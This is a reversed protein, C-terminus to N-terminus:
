GISWFSFEFTIASRNGPAWFSLQEIQLFPRLSWSSLRLSWSSLLATHSSGCPSYGRLFLSFPVAAALLKGSFRPRAVFLHLPFITSCRNLLAWIEFCLCAALTLHLFSKRESFFFVWLMSFVWLILQEDKKDINCEDLWHRVSKFNFIFDEITDFRISWWLSLAM